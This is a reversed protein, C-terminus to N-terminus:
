YDKKWFVGLGGQGQSTTKGKLSWQPAFLWELSILSEATGLGQEYELYFDDSLYKGTAISADGAGTGSRLSVRDVLFPKPGQNGLINRGSQKRKFIPAYRALTLAQIPSVDSLRQGFLVRSLIEDQPLSPESDLTINLADAVGEMRVHAVVEDTETVADIRLFPAPPSQGDFTITSDALSFIRGLFELTGKKVRLVGEIAPEATTNKIQLKGEWESDLGTGTVFIRGPLDVTLNLGTSYPSESEETKAEGVEHAETFEVTTIKTEGSSKPIEFFAPSVSVDGKLMAGSADGSYALVGSGEARMDDRYVLRPKDLTLKFDFPSGDKPSFTMFGEGTVKGGATDNATFETLRLTDGEAKITLALDNLITSTRGYEYYGEVVTLAGGLRPTDPTGRVTLDAELTGQLAHGEMPLLPSIAALDANGNLHGSVPANGRVQLNWPSVSFLVPINATGDFQAAGEVIAMAEVDLDGDALRGSLKADLGPSQETLTPRYGEVSADLLAVPATATGSFTVTGSTAGGMPDIGALEV